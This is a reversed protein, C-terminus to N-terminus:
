AQCFLLKEAIKIANGAASRITNHAMAVFRYGLVPCPEVPGTHVAM